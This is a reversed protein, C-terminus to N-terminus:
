GAGRIKIKNKNEQLLIKSGTVQPNEEEGTNICAGMLIFGRVEEGYLSEAAGSAFGGRRNKGGIIADRKRGGGGV